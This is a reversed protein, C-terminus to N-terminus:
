DLRALRTGRLVELRLALPQVAAEFLPKVEATIPPASPM